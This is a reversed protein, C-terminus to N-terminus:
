RVKGKSGNIALDSQLSINGSYNNERKANHTVPFHWSVSASTENWEAAKRGGKSTVAAWDISLRMCLFCYFMLQSIWIHGMAIPSSVSDCYWVRLRTKFQMRHPEPSLAPSRARKRAKHRVLAKRPSDCEIFFVLFVNFLLVAQAWISPDIVIDQLSRERGEM